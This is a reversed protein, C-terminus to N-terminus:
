KARRAEWRSRYRRDDQGIFEVATYGNGADRRLITGGDTVSSRSGGPDSLVDQHQTAFRPHVGYLALCLADLITSKDSGTDGTIAFLGTGWRSRNLIL